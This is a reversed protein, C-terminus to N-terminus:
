TSGEWLESLSWRARGTVKMARLTAAELREAVKWSKVNAAVNCDLVFPDQVLLPVGKFNAPWEYALPLGPVNITFARDHAWVNSGKASTRQRDLRVREHLWPFFRELLRGLDHGEDDDDGSSLCHLGFRAPPGSRGQGDQLDSQRREYRSLWKRLVIPWTGLEDSDHRYFRCRDGPPGVVVAEVDIPPISPAFISVDWEQGGDPHRRDQQFCVDDQEIKLHRLLAPHQLEPLLM